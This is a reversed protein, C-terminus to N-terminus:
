TSDRHPVPRDSRGDFTDIAVERVLRIAEDDLLAVGDDLDPIATPYREAVLAVLLAASARTSPDDDDLLTQIRDVRDVTAARVTEPVALAVAGLFRGASARVFAADDELCSAVPEAFGAVLHPETEAVAALIDVAVHRIQPDPSELLTAVDELAPSVRDPRVAAVYEIAHGALQRVRRHRGFVEEQDDELRSAAAPGRRKVSPDLTIADYDTELLIELLPDTATTVAEPHAEAVLGLFRVAEKQTTHKDLFGVVDEVYHRCADSDARAARVLGRLANQSVIAYEDDLREAIAPVHAAITEDDFATALLDMAGARVEDDDDALFAPIRDAFTSGVEPDRRALLKLGTMAYRRVTPNESDVFAGFDAPTVDGPDERARDIM